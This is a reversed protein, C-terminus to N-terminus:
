TAEGEFSGIALACRRDTDSAWRCSANSWTEGSCAVFELQLARKYIWNARTFKFNLEGIRISMTLINKVVIYYTTSM